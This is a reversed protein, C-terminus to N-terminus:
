KDKASLNVIISTDQVKILTLKGDEHTAKEAAIAENISIAEESGFKITSNDLDIEKTDPNTLEYEIEINDNVTYKKDEIEEFDEAENIYCTHETKKAFLTVEINAKTVVSKNIWYNGASSIYELWGESRANAFTVNTHEGCTVKSKEEDIEYHGFATEKWIIEIPVDEGIKYPVSKLNLVGFEDGETPTYTIEKAVFKITIDKSDVDEGPITISRTEIDHYADAFKKETGGITTTSAEEDIEWGGEITYIFSIQEHLKFSVNEHHIWPNENFNVQYVKPTNKTVLYWTLAGVGVTGVLGLTIGLAIKGSKKM